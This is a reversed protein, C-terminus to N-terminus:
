ELSQFTKTGKKGMTNSSIQVCKPLTQDFNIILSPPIQYKKVYNVIQHHFQLEAVKLAREPILVKATTKRRLVFGMSCFLSKTRPSGLVVNEKEFLLYRKVLAKATVLATQTKLVEGKYRTARLFKQVLKDLKQGLLTSHGRMKNALKKKPSANKRSAEKLKAKYRKKFGRMTNENLNLYTKKWERVSTAM